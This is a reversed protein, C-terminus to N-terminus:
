RGVTVEASNLYFDDFTKKKLPIKKLVHSERFRFRLGNQLKFELDIAIHSRLTHRQRDARHHLYLNHLHIQHSLNSEWCLYHTLFCLWDTIVPREGLHGDM